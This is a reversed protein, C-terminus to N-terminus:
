GGYSTVHRGGGDRLIEAAKSAHADPTRVWFLLAGDLVAEEYASAVTEAVDFDILAERLGGTDPAAATKALITALQGAAYVEGVRPMQVPQEVGLLVELGEMGEGLEETAEVDIRELDVDLHSKAVEQDVIVNLEEEDFGEALLEDVAEECNEYSEFLSFVSKM